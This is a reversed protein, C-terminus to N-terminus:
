ARPVAIATLILGDAVLWRGTLRTLSGRVSPPPQVLLRVTFVREREDIALIADEFGLWRRALPYWCKYVSEKASFLLRPWQIEPRRAQLGRLAPLEEPRAIDALLGPPLAANPEADIGLALLEDARAVACGRYGDCHTISGVVGAPWLPEGREGSRIATAPFGLEALANRACGRATAFESRRKPVARRVVAEEEAFLEARRDERAEVSVVGAPLLREIM